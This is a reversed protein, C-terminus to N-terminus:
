RIDMRRLLEQFRPNSRLRRFPHLTVYFDSDIKGLWVMMAQRERYGRELWGIAEAENGLAAHIVAMALHNPRPLQELQRLIERAKAEQGTMVYLVGLPGMAVTVGPLDAAQELVEVAEQFRGAGAHQIGLVWLAVPLGPDLELAQGIVEAAREHEGLESYTISLESLHMAALPDLDVSRESHSLAERVRGRARLFNAFDLHARAAGPNLRGGARFAAEAGEWDWYFLFRLTGLVSYAEGLTSDLRLAEEVATRALPFAEVPTLDGWWAGRAQYSQALGLFAPAYSSDIGIAQTFYATARQLSEVTWRNLHYEGRLVAEQVNPNVPSATTLGLQEEPTL